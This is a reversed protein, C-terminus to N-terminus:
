PIRCIIQSLYVPDSCLPPLDKSMAENTYKGPIQVKTKAGMLFWEYEIDIHGVDLARINANALDSALITATPGLALLILRGDYQSIIADYIDQYRDFANIAPAVLRRVSSANEFLNNGVGLCTFQGEVILIDKQNWLSKLASFSKIARHNTKWDIYPRTIQTDGFAYGKGPTQRLIRVCHKHNDLTLGWNIWFRKAGIKCGYTSNLLSPICILLNPNKNSLVAQLKHAIEQSSSQFGIEGTDLLLRFEGDGFRALSCNTKKLHELTKQWSMINLRYFLRLELVKCLKIFSQKKSYIREYINVLARKFHSDKM